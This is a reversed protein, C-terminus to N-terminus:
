PYVMGLEDGQAVDQYASPHKLTDAYHRSFAKPM